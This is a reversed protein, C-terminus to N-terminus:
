ALLAWFLAIVTTLVVSMRPACAGSVSAQVFQSGCAEDIFKAAASYESTIPTSRNTAGSAFINMTSRLCEDCTPKSGAPLGVGLPLYYVYSSSPASANLIAKSFCWDGSTQDRACGAHYLPEYAILANYAQLVNPNRLQYDAGCKSNQKIRVALSSMISSCTGFDASCSANLVQSLLLPSSFPLCEKFTDNSLFSQFFAPCSPQTFNSLVLNTDFPQPLATSSSSATAITEVTSSTTAVAGDPASSTPPTVTTPNGEQRKEHFIMPKAPAESRDFVLEANDELYWPSAVAAYRGRPKEARVGRGCCMLFCVVFLALWRANIMPLWTSLRRDTSGPRSDKIAICAVRRAPCPRSADNCRANTAENWCAPAHTRTRTRQAAVCATATDSAKCSSLARTPHRQQQLQREPSLIMAGNRTPFPRIKAHCTTITLADRKPQAEITLCDR